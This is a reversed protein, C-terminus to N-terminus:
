GKPKESMHLSVTQMGPWVYVAAVEWNIGFKKYFESNEFLCGVEVSPRECKIEITPLESTLFVIEITWM